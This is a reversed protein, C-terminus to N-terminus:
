TDGPETYSEVLGAAPDIGAEPAGDGKLHAVHVRPRHFDVRPHGDALEDKVGGLPCFVGIEFFAVCFIEILPLGGEGPVMLVFFLGQTRPLSPIYM